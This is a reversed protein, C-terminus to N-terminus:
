HGILTRKESEKDRRHLWTLVHGLDSQTLGGKIYECKYKKMGLGRGEYFRRVITGAITLRIYLQFTM